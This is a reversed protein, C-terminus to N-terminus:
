RVEGLKSVLWLADDRSVDFTIGSPLRFLIPQGLTEQSPFIQPLVGTNKPESEHVVALKRPMPVMQAKWITITQKSVGCAQAIEEKKMGCELFALARRKLAPPIIPRQLGSSTRFNKFAIKLAVLTDEVSSPSAM